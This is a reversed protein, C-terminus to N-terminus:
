GPPERWEGERGGERWVLRGGEEERLGDGEAGEEEVRRDVGHRLGLGAGLEEAVHALPVEGVMGVVDHTSHPM